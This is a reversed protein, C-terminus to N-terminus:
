DANGPETRLEGGLGPGMSPWGFAGPREKRRIVTGLLDALTPELADRWAIFNHAHRTERYDVGSLDRLRTAMLRNNWVNEEETGCTMAVPPLPMTPSAAHVEDIFGAIARFRHFGQEQPDTARTFFSGSQLFLGDFLGRRWQAHLTALAGLSAGIGLTVTTPLTERAVELIQQLAVPYEDSASYWSERDPSALLLARAPIAPAAGQDRASLFTLYDLLRGEDAYAPGDQVVLLPAPGGQLAPSEWLWGDVPGMITEFRVHERGPPDVEGLWTPPTYGPLELVSTGEGVLNPNGPDALRLGVEFAYELRRVEPLPVRARWVGDSWRLEPRPVSSGLGLDVLVWAYRREPDPLRFMIGDPGMTTVEGSDMGFM